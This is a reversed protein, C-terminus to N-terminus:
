GPHQSLKGLLVLAPVILGAGGIGFLGSVVGAVLGIAAVLVWTMTGRGTPTRGATRVWRGRADRHAARRGARARPQGQVAAADRERPYAGGRGGRRRGRGGTCPAAARGPREAGDPGAGRARAVGRRWRGVAGRGRPGPAGGGARPPPRPAAPPPPPGGEPPGGGGGGGGGGGRGRRHM